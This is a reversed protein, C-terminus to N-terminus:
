LNNISNTLFFAVILFIAVFPYGISKNIKNAYYSFIFVGIINVIFFSLVAGKIGLFPIFFLNLMCNLGLLIANITVAKKLLKKQVIVQSFFQSMGELMVAMFLGFIISYGEVYRTGFFFLILEKGSLFYVVTFISIFFIIMLNVKRIEEVIGTNDSDRLLRMFIVTNPKIIGAIFLRGVGLSLTASIGYIAVAKLDLYHNLLFKDAFGYTSTILMGPIAVWGLKILGGQTLPVHNWAARKQEDKFIQNLKPWVFIFAIFGFFIQGIFYTEITPLLFCLTSIFIGSILSAYFYPKYLDLCFTLSFLFAQISLSFSAILVVLLLFLSFKSNFFILWIFILIASILLFSKVIISLSALFEIKIRPDSKREDSFYAITIASAQGFM